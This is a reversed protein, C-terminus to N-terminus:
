HVTCIEGQSRLQALEISTEIIRIPPLYRCYVIFAAGMALLLQRMAEEYDSYTLRSMETFYEYANEIGAAKCMRVAEDNRISAMHAYMMSKMMFESPSHNLTASLWAQVYWMSEFWSAFDQVICVMTRSIGMNELERLIM